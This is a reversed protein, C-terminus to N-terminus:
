RSCDKISYKIKGNIDGKNWSNDKWHSITEDKVPGDGQTWILKQQSSGHKPISLPYKTPDEKGCESFYKEMNMIILNLITYFKKRGMCGQKYPCNMLVKSLLSTTYYRSKFFTCAILNSGLDYFHQDYPWLWIGYLEEKYIIIEEQFM